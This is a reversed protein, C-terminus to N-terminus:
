NWDMKGINIMMVCIWLKSKMTSHGYFRKSYFIKIGLKLDQELIDSVNLLLKLSFDNEKLKGVDQTKGINVHRWVDM